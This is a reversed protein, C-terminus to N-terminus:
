PIFLIFIRCMGTNNNGNPPPSGPSSTGTSNQFFNYIEYRVNCSPALTRGGSSAYCCQPLENAASRLCRDCDSRSLDQTCQALAYLTQSNAVNVEDIAFLNPSSTAAEDTLRSMLEDRKQDFLTTDSVNNSNLLYVRPAMQMRTIFFRDAYHLQCEDYFIVSEKRNPCRDTIEQAATDACIRCDDLSYDGRCQSLAYVSDPNRGASINYFRTDRPTSNNSISTLLLNLNTEFTSNATYNGGLCFHFAYTQATCLNSKLLFTFPLALFLLAFFGM